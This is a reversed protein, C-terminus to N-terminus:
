QQNNCLKCTGFKLTDVAFHCKVGIKVKSQVHLFPKMTTHFISNGSEKHQMALYELDEVPVLIM